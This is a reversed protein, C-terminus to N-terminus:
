YLYSCFIFLYFAQREMRVHVKRFICELFSERDATRRSGDNPLVAFTLPWTHYPGHTQSLDLFSLLRRPFVSCEFKSSHPRESSARSGLLDYTCFDYSFCVKHMHHYARPTKQKVLMQQSFHLGLACDTFIKKKKHNKSQYCLHSKKKKKSKSTTSHM